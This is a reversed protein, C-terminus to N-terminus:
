DSDIFLTSALASAETFIGNDVPHKINRKELHHLLYGTDLNGLMKGGTMPCGGIGHLVSDFRRIGADYAADVMRGQNEGDTHLHLGFEIHPFEKQVASFVETIIKEDILISVNSLPIVSVGAAALKGINELLITLSWPDGYPNGFAMSIYIVHEKGTAKSIEVISRVDELSKEMTVNLNKQLFVPSIAYPYSIVDVMKYGSISEAGKLSLALVMLKSKKGSLDIEKLIELSDAMQPVFKASATSGTEVTDFGAKLLLNILEIKKQSPITFPLSQMGERPSEIIKM